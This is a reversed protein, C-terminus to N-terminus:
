FHFKDKQIERGFNLWFTAPHSQHWGFIQGQVGIEYGALGLGVIMAAFIIIEGSFM